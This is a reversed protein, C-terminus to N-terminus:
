VHKIGIILSLPTVQFVQVEAVVSALESDCQLQYNLQRGLVNEAAGAPLFGCVYMYFVIAM